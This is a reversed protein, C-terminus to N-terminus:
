IVPPPPALDPAPVLEPAPAPIDEPPAPAV